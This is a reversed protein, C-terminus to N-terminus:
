PATRVRGNLRSVIEQALARRAEKDDPDSPWGLIAAHRPPPPDSEIKLRKVAITAQDFDVRAKLQVYGFRNAEVEQKGYRWIEADSLDVTRTISTEYRIREKNFEPMFANSKPSLKTRSFDGDSFLFRTLPEGIDVPSLDLQKETM